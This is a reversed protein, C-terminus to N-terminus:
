QTCTHMHAQTHTFLSMLTSSNMEQVCCALYCPSYVQKGAQLDGRTVENPESYINVDVQSHVVHGTKAKSKVVYRQDSIKDLLCSDKLNM